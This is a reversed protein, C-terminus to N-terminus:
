GWTDIPDDSMNFPATPHDKQYQRWKELVTKHYQIVEKSNKNSPVYGSNISQRWNLGGIDVLDTGWFRPPTGADGKILIIKVKKKAEQVKNKNKTKRKEEQQERSDVPLLAKDKKKECPPDPLAMEANEKEIRDIQNQLWSKEEPDFEDLAEGIFSPKSPIKKLSTPTTPVESAPGAPSEIDGKGVGLQSLIARLNFYKGFESADMGYRRIFTESLVRQTMKLLSGVLFSFVKKRIEPRRLMVASEESNPSLINERAMKEFRTHLLYEFVSSMSKGIDERSYMAETKKRLPRKEVKSKKIRNIV